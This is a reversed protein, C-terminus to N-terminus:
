RLPNPSSLLLRSFSRLDYRFIALFAFFYCWVKLANKDIISKRFLTQENEVQLQWVNLKAFPCKNAIRQAPM